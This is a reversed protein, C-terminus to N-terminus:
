NKEKMREKRIESKSNGNMILMWRFLTEERVPAVTLGTTGLFPM